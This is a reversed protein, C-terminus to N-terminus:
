RDVTLRAIIANLGMAGLLTAPLSSLDWGPFLVLFLVSGYWPVMCTPCAWLPSQMWGPLRKDAWDSVFSFIMGEWMTAHVAYVMLAIIIIQEIM